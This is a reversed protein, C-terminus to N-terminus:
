DKLARLLQYRLWELEPRSIPSEVWGCVVRCDRPTIAALQGFVIRLEMVDASRVHQEATHVAGVARFRLNERDAEIVRRRFLQPMSAIVIVGFIVVLLAAVLAGGGIPNVNVTRLNSFFHAYVGMAVAVVALVVCAIMPFVFLERWSVAPEVIVLRNGEWTCTCRTQGGPPLMLAAAAPAPSELRTVAESLRTAATGDTVPLGLFGAVQDAFRRAARYEKEAHLALPEGPGDLGVLYVIRAQYRQRSRATSLLVNQFDALNRVHSNLPIVASRWTKVTGAGLNLIIGSRGLSRLVLFSGALTIAIGALTLSIFLGLQEQRITLGLGFLALGLATLLAPLVTRRWSGAKFALIEESYPRVRQMAPRGHSSSQSVILHYCITCTAVRLALL